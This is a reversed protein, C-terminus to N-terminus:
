WLTQYCCVMYCISFSYVKNRKFDFMCNVGFLMDMTKWSRIHWCIQCLLYIHKHHVIYDRDNRWRVKVNCDWLRNSRKLRTPWYRWKRRSISKRFSRYEYTKIFNWSLLQIFNRCYIQSCWNHNNLLLYGNFRLM